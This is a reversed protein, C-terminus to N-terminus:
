VSIVLKGSHRNNKDDTVTLEANTFIENNQIKLDADINKKKVGVVKGTIRTNDKRLITM